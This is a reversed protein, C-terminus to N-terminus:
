EMWLDAPFSASINLASISPPQRSWEASDIAPLGIAEKVVDVMSSGTSGKGLSECLIEGIQEVLEPEINIGNDELYRVAQVSGGGVSNNSSDSKQTAAGAVSELSNGKASPQDDGLFVGCSTLALTSTM